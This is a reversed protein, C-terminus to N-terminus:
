ASVWYLTTGGRSRCRHIGLDVLSRAHHELRSVAFVEAISSANSRRPTPSHMPSKDCVSACAGSFCTAPDM